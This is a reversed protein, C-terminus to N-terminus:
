IGGSRQDIAILDTSTGTSTCKAVKSSLGVSVSGYSLVEVTNVATTSATFTTDHEGALTGACAFSFGFASLLLAFVVLVVIGLVVVLPM